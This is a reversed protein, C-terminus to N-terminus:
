GVHALFDDLAPISATIAVGHGGPYTYVDADPDDRLLDASSTGARVNPDSRGFAGVVHARTAV